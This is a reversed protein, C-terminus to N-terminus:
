EDTKVELQYKTHQIKNDTLYQQLSSEQIKRFSIVRIQEPATNMDEAAVAVAMAVIVEKDLNNEM